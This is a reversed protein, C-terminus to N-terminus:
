GRAWIGVEFRKLAQCWNTQTRFRQAVSPDSLGGIEHRFGGLYYSGALIDFDYSGEVEVDISFGRDSSGHRGVVDVVVVRQGEDDLMEAENVDSDLIVRGKQMRAGSYQKEPQLIHRSIDQM